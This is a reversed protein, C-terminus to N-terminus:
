EGGVGGQAKHVQLENSCLAAPRLGPQAGMDCQSCEREDVAGEQQGNRGEPRIVDAYGVKKKEEHCM